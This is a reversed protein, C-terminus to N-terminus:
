RVPEMELKQLTPYCASRVIHKLTQISWVFRKKNESKIREVVRIWPKSEHEEYQVVELKMKYLIMICKEMQTVLLNLFKKESRERFIDLYITVLSFVLAVVSRLLLCNCEMCGSDIWPTPSYCDSSENVFKYVLNVGQAIIRYNVSLDEALYKDEEDKSRQMERNMDLDPDYYEELDRVLKLKYCGAEMEQFIMQLFCQDTGNCLEPLFGDDATLTFFIDFLVQRAAASAQLENSEQLKALAARILASIQILQEKEPLEYEWLAKLLEGVRRLMEFDCLETMMRLLSICTDLICEMERSKFADGSFSVMHVMNRLEADLVASDERSFASEKRSSKERKWSKKGTKRTGTFSFFTGKEVGTGVKAVAKEVQEWGVKVEVKKNKICIQIIKDVSIDLMTGWDTSTDEHHRTKILIKNQCVPDTTSLECFQEVWFDPLSDPILNLIDSGEEEQDTEMRDGSNTKDNSSDKEATSKNNELEAKHKDEEMSIVASVQEQLSQAKIRSAELEKKLELERLEAAKCIRDMERRLDSEQNRRIKEEKDLERRREDLRQVLVDIEGQKQKHAPKLHKIEELLKKNEERLKEIVDEAKPGEEDLDPIITSFVATTENLRAKARDMPAPPEDIDFISDDNILAMTMEQLEAETMAPETRTNMDGDPLSNFDVDFDGWDEEDEEMSVAAPVKAEKCGTFQFTARSPVKPPPMGEKSTPPNIPNSAPKNVSSTGASKVPNLSLNRGPSQELSSIELKLPTYRSRNLSPRSYNASTKPKKASSPLGDFDSFRGNWNGAM